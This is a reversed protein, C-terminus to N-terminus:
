FEIIFGMTPLRSSSRNEVYTPKANSGDPKLANGDTTDYIDPGQNDIKFTYSAPAWNPSDLVNTVDIFIDLTWKNFNWKKDIRIDLSQFPDLRLTNLKNYDLIGSGTTAYNLRSALTDYPTYPTGGLLRYKVGLEWNKKFKYGGTFAVLHRNDWASPIYKQTNFGTFESWFLTYALIGYFNKTFKQQFLFEVGYSRGKGIDTIDENGLIGFDGGLNALSVSDLNSVPYRNYLKYFGEVTIRTAKAPIYEIGAVLHDSQIYRINKNLYNGNNDKFGLVTYFPTKYYRGASANISWKDTFSYAIALRPSLTQLPNMGTETFTNMDTRLGLSTRLREGIFSRSVQGFAGFKFFNVATNYEIILAPQILNNNSDRIEQFIRNYTDMKYTAYQAMAGYSFKWKNKYKNMEWRIKNEAERSVFKFRKKAPNSNDNDDYKEAFNQLVNRSVALQMYGNKVLKKWAIGRTYSYQKFIPIGNLISQQELTANDPINLRFDDLAGIGIVYIENNKDIQRHIKFQNDWYDPLFPLQIAKFLFQLYSRRLSFLYTTKKSKGLYGEITGAFETASLRLNGQTRETSGIKQKFQLVSSLANDYRASFASTSMSVDEIFSVNLIGVPGGGSGQTAFHNINPIEIGDLYFVNENPAGGRVIIDNRFGISGGVGPLSQVVKSVDFNGGPNAKIEQYSLTRLSNPSEVPQQFFNSEVVVENTTQGVDEIEFNLSLTNGSTIVVDSKTQPKYGILRATINYSGVPLEIRYNGNEDTLTGTTSDASISVGPLFEQTNKDKVTGILIGKKQALVVSCIFTTLIIFIFRTM